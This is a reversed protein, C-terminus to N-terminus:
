EKTDPNDMRLKDMEVLLEDLKNLVRGYFANLELRYFRDGFTSLLFAIILVPIMMSAPIGNILWGDKPTGAVREYLSPGHVSFWLGLVTGLFIVPYYVKAMKANVSVQNHLWSDFSKLYEYCSLSTDVKELENLERKNVLFVVALTIFMVIGTVPLKLIFLGVLGLIGGIVIAKLNFRFMRKFKDIVHESKRTYLDNVKPAILAKSDLFGTKWITEISKEM